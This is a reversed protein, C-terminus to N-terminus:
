NKTELIKLISKQHHTVHHITFFLMERLTLKGLLPHPLVYIDLDKENLKLTLSCLREVTNRLKGIIIEKHEFPIPKPIFRKTAKGGLALKQNYKDVLEQYSKSKRNNTSFFLKLVFMPLKLALVVPNVSKFIHEAQQGPSWKEGVVKEFDEKNLSEILQIFDQHNNQLHQVIEQKNM